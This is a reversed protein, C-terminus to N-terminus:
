SLLTVKGSALAYFAPVVKLRKAEVAERVIASDTQLKKAILRANMRAVEDAYADDELSGKPTAELAPAIADVISQISGPATTGAKRLEIASGVAGCKEHGMVILLMSNFNAIAFEFSGITGPTAINGAIRCVFIDGILQDFVHETPVRSDACSLIMAPPRQGGATDARREAIATPAPLEGAVFKANGEM